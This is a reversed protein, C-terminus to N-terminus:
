RVQNQQINVEGMRYTMEGSVMMNQEMLGCMSGMEMCRETLIIVRTNEVMQGPKLEM